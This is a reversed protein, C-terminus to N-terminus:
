KKETSKRFRTLFENRMSDCVNLSHEVFVSDSCRMVLELEDVGHEIAISMISYYDLECMSKYRMCETLATNMDNVEVMSRIATAMFNVRVMFDCDLCFRDQYYEGDARSPIMDGLDVSESGCKYCKTKNKVYEDIDIM